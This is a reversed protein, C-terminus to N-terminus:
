CFVAHCDAPAAPKVKVWFPQKPDVSTTDAPGMGVIQVIVEENGRSGDWHVAKAPHLMYSGARLPVAKAPDFHDGTGTWWTGKLVTVYRANPHWHPHDMVHPPFKVRIVYLGAGKPDGALVAQQVGPSDPQPVWHVQEPSLRVFGSAEPSADAALGGAALAAVAGLAGALLKTRM